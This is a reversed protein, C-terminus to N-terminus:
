SRLSDGGWGVRVGNASAAPALIIGLAAAVAFVIMLIDNGSVGNDVVTVLVQLGALTAGAASKVWTAQRILPTIYVAVATTAAIAIQVWEPATPTHHGDNFIPVAVVAVAYLFAIISKGANTM